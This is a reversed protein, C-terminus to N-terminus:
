ENKLAESAVAKAWASGQRAIRKLAQRYRVAREHVLPRAAQRLRECEARAEDCEKCAQAYVAHEVFYAFDGESAGYAKPDAKFNFVYTQAGVELDGAPFLIPNARISITWERASM